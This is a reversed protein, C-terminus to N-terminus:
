GFKTSQLSAAAPSSAILLLHFCKLKFDSLSGFYFMEKHIQLVSSIDFVIAKNYKKILCHLNENSVWSSHQLLALMSSPLDNSVTIIISCCHCLGTFSIISIRTIHCIESFLNYRLLDGPNIFIDFSIRRFNRFSCLLNQNLVDFMQCNWFFNKHAKILFVIKSIYLFIWNLEKIMSSRDKLVCQINVLM